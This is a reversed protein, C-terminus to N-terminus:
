EAGGEAGVAKKGAKKRVYEDVYRIGKGKYPEPKRHERIRAAFQGIAQKDIGSVTIINKDVKVEIGEPIEMEVPHSFGLNLTLKKGSAQANYGVGNIELKKEFGEKVGIVMNNIIARTTGWLASNNKESDKKAISLTIEKEGAEVKIDQDFDFNLSGKPGKCTIKGDAISIEVDAPIEIKQSGIRSM